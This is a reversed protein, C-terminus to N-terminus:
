GASAQSGPSWFAHLDAYLPHSSLLDDHSGVVVGDTAMVLVRQARLTASMRHAVVILTAGTEMFAREAREEAAPDLHCTAEDLIVIPRASLHARALTVLQREGASMGSKSLDIEADLGGLRDLVRELGVAQAAALIQQDTAAPRLYTLNDRLSGAFVYSEQPVMAVLESRDSRRHLPAGGIEVAGRSPALVGGLLAALTSKGIGSSGVVALHDGFPLDLRLGEVIPTASAGYSFSLDRVAIDPSSVLPLTLLDPTSAQREASKLLRGHQVRLVVIYSAMKTVFMTAASLGALLYTFAGVIEGPTLGRRVLLPVFGLATLAPLWTAAANVAATGIANQDSQRLLNRNTLDICERVRAMAYGKPGAAGFAMLDRVGQIARSMEGYSAEAAHALATQNRTDRYVLAVLLFMALALWPVVLALLPWSITALGVAAGLAFLGSPATRLMLALTDVLVPVHQVLEAGSRVVQGTQMAEGLSHRVVDRTLALQVDASADAALRLMRLLSWVGVASTALLAGIWALSEVLAEAYAADVASAIFRGASLPALAVGLGCGAIRVLRGRHRLVYAFPTDIM